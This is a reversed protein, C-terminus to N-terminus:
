KRCRRNRHGGRRRILSCVSYIAHQSRQQEESLVGGKENFKRTVDGKKERALKKLKQERHTMPTMCRRAIATTAAVMM